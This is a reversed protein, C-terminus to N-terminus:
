INNLEHRIAEALKGQVQADFAVFMPGTNTELYWLGDEDEMFDSAGFNLNLRHMLHKVKEITVNDIETVIVSSAPDDRYDLKDTVVEFAFHKDNIVYLRKNKGTIKQQIICPYVANNGEITHQGGTVPKLITDTRNSKETVETHPIRLGLQKAIILNHLKTVTEYHYKKNYKVVNHSQIYNSMLYYNNYKKPTNEEFVNSRIFISNLDTVPEGEIYLIDKTIDWEINAAQDIFKDFYPHLVKINPDSLQGFLYASM